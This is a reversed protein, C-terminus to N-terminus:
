SGTGRDRRLTDDIEAMVRRELYTFFPNHRLRLLQSLPVTLLRTEGRPQLTGLPLGEYTSTTRQGAGYVPDDPSFPIAVHSLSYVGRPWAFSLATSNITNSRPAKTRQAVLESDQAVNTIVTLRYPLDSRAELRELPADIAAPIFPALGGARLAPRGRGSGFSDRM